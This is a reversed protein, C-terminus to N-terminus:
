FSKFNKLYIQRNKHYFTDQIDVIRKLYVQKSENQHIYNCTRPTKCGKASRCRRPSWEDFRHARGCKSTESCAKGFKCLRSLDTTTSSKSSVSSTDKQPHRSTQQQPAFAKVPKPDVGGLLLSRRRQNSGDNSHDHNPSSKQDSERRDRRKQNNRDNGQQRYKNEHSIRANREVLAKQEKLRTEKMQHHVEDQIINSLSITNNKEVNKWPVAVSSTSVESTSLTESKEDCSIHSKVDEEDVVTTSQQNNKSTGKRVPRVAPRQLMGQIIAFDEAISTMIPVHVVPTSVVHPSYDISHSTENSSYSHLSPHSSTDSEYESYGDDYESSMYDDHGYKTYMSFHNTQDYDEEYEEHYEDYTSPPTSPPTTDM